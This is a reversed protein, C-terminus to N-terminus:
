RIIFHFYGRHSLETQQHSQLLLLVKTYRQYLMAKNVETRVRRVTMIYPGRHHENTSKAYREFLQISITSYNNTKVADHSIWNVALRSVTSVLVPPHGRTWAAYMLSHIPTRYWLTSHQHFLFINNRHHMPDDVVPFRFIFHSIKVV